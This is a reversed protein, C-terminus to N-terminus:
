IEHKYNMIKINKDDIIKNQKFENIKLLKIENQLENTLIDNNSKIENNLENKLINNNSENKSDNDLENKSDNNLKNKYIKFSKKILNVAKIQIILILMENCSMKNLLKFDFWNNNRIKKIAFNRIKRKDIM